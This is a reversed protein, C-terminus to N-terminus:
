KNQAVANWGVARPEGGRALRTCGYARELCSERRWANFGKCTLEVMSLRAGYANNNVGGRWIEACWCKTGLITARLVPLIGRSVTNQAFICILQASQVFKLWSTDRATCSEGFLQSTTTLSASGM